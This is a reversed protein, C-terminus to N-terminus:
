RALCRHRLRSRDITASSTASGRIVEVVDIAWVPNFFHMGVVRDPRGSAEAIQGIPLSSTNTALISTNLFTRDLFWWPLTSDYWTDHWLRTQGALRDFQAALLLVRYGASRLRRCRIRVSCLSM